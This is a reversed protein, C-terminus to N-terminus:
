MQITVATVERQWRESRRFISWRNWTMLFSSSSFFIRESCAWLSRLLSWWSICCKHVSNNLFVFSHVSISLCYWAIKFSNWLRWARCSWSMCDMAVWRRGAQPPEDPVLESISTLKECWCRYDFVDLKGAPSAALWRPTLSLSLSIEIWVVSGGEGIESGGVVGHAPNVYGNAQIAFM